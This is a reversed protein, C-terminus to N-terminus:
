TPTYEIFFVNFNLAATTVTVFLGEGENTELYGSECIPWMFPQGDTNAPATIEQTLVTGGSASRFFFTGPTSTNSQVSMGMLRIIKGSVAAIVETNAAVSAAKPKCQVKCNEQGIAFVKIPNVQWKSM